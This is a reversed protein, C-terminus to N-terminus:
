FVFKMFLKCWSDGNSSVEFHPMSFFIFNFLHVFSQSWEAEANQKKRHNETALWVRSQDQPAPSSAGLGASGHEPWYSAEHQLPTRRPFFTHQFDYNLLCSISAM